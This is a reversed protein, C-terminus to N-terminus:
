AHPTEGACAATDRIAEIIPAYGTCRCLNGAIAHRIDTDSPSPNHRLLATAAMVMGPACFGCQVAGHEIFKRQLLSLGNPGALGEITQVSKGRVQHALILCSNVASGDVLVTCAGCEGESCGEKTGTLALPGRLVDILRATPAVDLSVPAGNVTTNLLM